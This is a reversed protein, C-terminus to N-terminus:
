LFLVVRATAPRHPGDALTRVLGGHGDDRRGRDQRERGGVGRLMRPQLLFGHEDADGRVRCEGERVKARVPSM